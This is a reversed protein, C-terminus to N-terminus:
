QSCLDATSKRYAKYWHRLISKESTLEYGICVLKWPYTPNQTLATRQLDRSPKCMAVLMRERLQDSQGVVLPRERM